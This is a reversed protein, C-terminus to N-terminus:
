LDLARAPVLALAPQVGAQAEKIDQAMAIILTEGNAFLMGADAETPVVRPHPSPPPARSPRTRWPDSGLGGGRPARAVLGAVSM